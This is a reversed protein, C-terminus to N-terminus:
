MIVVILPTIGKWMKALVQRSADMNLLANHSNGRSIKNSKNM